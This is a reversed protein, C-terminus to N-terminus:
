RGRLKVIEDIAALHRDVYPIAHCRPPVSLARAERAKVLVSDHLGLGDLAQVAIHYGCTLDSWNVPTRRSSAEILRQAEARAVTWNGMRMAVLARIRVFVTNNPFEALVTAAISDVRAYDHQDYLIWCLSNKAAFNYPFPAQTALVIEGMGKAARDGFGPFWKLTKSLYYDFVGSGLYAAYFTSDRRIVERFASMSSLAVSAAALWRENKALMVGKGGQINGIYFLCRVSDSGRLGPLRATLVRTVSDALCYYSSDEVTYTEYDLIETQRTALLMYLADIDGPDSQLMSTLQNAARGYDQMALHYVASDLKAAGSLVPASFFGVACWLLVCQLRQGV